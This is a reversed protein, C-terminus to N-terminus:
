IKLSINIIFDVWHFYAGNYHTFISLISFYLSINLIFILKFARTKYKCFSRWRPAPPYPCSLSLHRPQSLSAGAGGRASSPMSPSSTPNGQSLFYSQVTDVGRGVRCVRANRLYLTSTSMYYLSKSLLSAKWREPTGTRILDLLFDWNPDLIDKM